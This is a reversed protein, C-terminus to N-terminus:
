GVNVGAGLTGTSVMINLGSFPNNFEEEMKKRIGPKVSANHFVSRVGNKRLEDVLASGTKKSQVFLLTKVDKEELALEIATKLKDRYSSVPHIKYEVDIPRWNSSICKTQKGNLSKIWSSFERANGLTASLAVLRCNPNVDSIEMLINELVSGRNTDGIVHAEDAVLCNLSKMWDSHNGSKLAFDFSELTSVVLPAEVRKEEDGSWVSIGNKALPSGQWDREKENAIARFPCVYAVNGGNLVHYAMVCEAIATKGVATPASVILNCDKDCYPIAASQVKNYEAFGPNWWKYESTQM